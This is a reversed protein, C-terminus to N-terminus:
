ETGMKSVFTESYPWDDPRPEKFPYIRLYSLNTTTTNFNYISMKTFEDVSSFRQKNQRAIEVFKNSLIQAL